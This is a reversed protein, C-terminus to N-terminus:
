RSSMGTIEESMEWLKKALEQDYSQPSSPYESKELDVKSFKLHKPIAFFKGTTGQLSPEKVLYMILEAAQEPTKLLPVALRFARTKLDNNVQWINTAVGGPCMANVTVRCNGLRKALEYTFMILALKSKGYCTSPHDKSRECMLDDVDINKGRHALSSVNIIRASVSKKMLPLLLNTLLFPSLYNVAISMEKGDRTLTRSKLYVGANNILVDLRDYKKLFNKALARIDDLSQFDALLCDVDQGTSEKIEAIAKACKEESRGVIVVKAKNLALERALVLGIGSTAGTVMCVKDEITWDAM